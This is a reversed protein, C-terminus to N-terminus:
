KGTPILYVVTFIVIWVIDVFHWYLGVYEVTTARETPLRGRLSMSVLSLLMLIGVTVHARH